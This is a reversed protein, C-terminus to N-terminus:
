QRQRTLEERFLRVLDSRGLADEIMTLTNEVQEVNLTNSRAAIIGRVDELDKARGALLKTVILDEPSIFPIPTGAIDVVSARELFAEELGPGALIVDLQLNSALHTLPLVRTTAVFADTAEERPRFGHVGLATIVDAVDRGALNITVDVDTTLRPRGWVVVAQAGFVYWRIGLANLASALDILLDAPTAPSPV